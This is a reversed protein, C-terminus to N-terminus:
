AAAAMKPCSSGLLTCAMASAFHIARGKAQSFVAKESIPLVLPEMSIEEMMQMIGMASAVMISCMPSMHAMEEVTSFSKM